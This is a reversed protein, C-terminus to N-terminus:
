CDDGVGKDPEPILLNLVRALKEYEARQVITELEDTATQCRIEWDTLVVQKFVLLARQDSTMAIPVFRSGKPIQLTLVVDPM